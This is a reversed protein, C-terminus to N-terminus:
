RRRATQAAQLASPLAVPYSSGMTSSLHITSIYGATGSGKVGKPRAAVVATLLCGLNTALHEAPFSAKGIGAHVVAGKDARNPPSVRITCASLISLLQM